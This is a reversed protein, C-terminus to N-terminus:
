GNARVTRQKDMQSALDRAGLEWRQRHRWRSPRRRVGGSEASAVAGLAQEGGGGRRRRWRPRRGADARRCLDVGGRGGGSVAGGGDVGAVRRRRAHVGASAEQREAPAKAGRGGGGGRGRRRRRGRAVPQQPLWPRWGLAVTPFPPRLWTSGRFRPEAEGESAKLHKLPLEV